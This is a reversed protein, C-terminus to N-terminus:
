RLYYPHKSRVTSHFRASKMQKILDEDAIFAHLESLLAADASAKTEYREATDFPQAPSPCPTQFLEKSPTFLEVMVGYKRGLLAIQEDDGSLEKPAGKARRKRQNLRLDANEDKLDHVKDQL